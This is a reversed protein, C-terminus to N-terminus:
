KLRPPDVSNKGDKPPRQIQPDLQESRGLIAYSKIRYEWWRHRLNKTKYFMVYFPQGGAEGIKQSFFPLISDSMQQSGELM